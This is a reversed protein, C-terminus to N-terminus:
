PANVLFAVTLSGIILPFLKSSGGSGLPASSCIPWDSPVLSCNFLESEDIVLTM